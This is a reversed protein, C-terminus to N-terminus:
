QGRMVKLRSKFYEDTLQDELVAINERDSVIPYAIVYFRYKEEESIFLVGLNKVQEATFCTVAFVKRAARIMNKENEEAAMLRRLELFEKQTATKKCTSQLSDGASGLTRMLTDEKGTVPDLTVRKKKETIVQDDKKLSGSDNSANPNQLEMNIFRTGTREKKANLSDTAPLATMAENEPVQVTKNVPIFVKVSDTGAGTKDIYTILQGEETSDTKLKTIGTNETVAKKDKAIGTSDPITNNVTIEAIGPDNVVEALVRAFEGAGTEIDGVPQSSKSRQMEIRQGTQLNLLGWEANGENKLLFGASADQLHITVEMDPWKKQLFGIVVPYSSDSLGPVILYGPDSATLIQDDIKVYFPLKNEKQIYIFRPQQAWVCVPLLIVLFLMFGTKAIFGNM